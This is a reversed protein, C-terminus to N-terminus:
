AGTEDSAEGTDPAYHKLWSRTGLKRTEGADMAEASARADALIQDIEVEAHTTRWAAYATVAARLPGGPLIERLHAVTDIIETHAATIADALGTIQDVTVGLDLRDVAYAPDTIRHLHM